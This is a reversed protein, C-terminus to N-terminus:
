ENGSAEKSIKFSIMSNNLHIELLAVEHLADFCQEAESLFRLFQNVVIFKLLKDVGILDV